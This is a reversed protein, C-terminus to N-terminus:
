VARSYAPGPAGIYADFASAASRVLYRADDTVSLVSGDLRVIGDDVL